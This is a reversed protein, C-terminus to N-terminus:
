RDLSKLWDLLPNLGADTVQWTAFGAARAPQIDNDERDGVILIEAPSFPAWAEAIWRFVGPDPKSFGREYSLFRIAFGEPPISCEALEELTYAQANSVLGLPVNRARLWDLVALAGPQIETRREFRAARAPSVGPAVAQVIEPWQVEPHAIGNQRSRAHRRAIEAQIRALFAERSQGIERQWDAGSRPAPECRLLTGYIDFVVARPLRM